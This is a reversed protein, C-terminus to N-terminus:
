QPQRTYNGSKRDVFGIFLGDILECMVQAHQSEKNKLENGSPLTTESLFLWSIWEFKHTHWTLNIVILGWIDFYWNIINSVGGFLPSQCMRVLAFHHCIRFRLFSKSLLCVCEAVVCWAVFGFSQLSKIHPLLCHIPEYLAISSREFHDNENSWISRNRYFTYIHMHM